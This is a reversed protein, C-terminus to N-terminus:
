KRVKKWEKQGEQLNWKTIQKSWENQSLNKIQILEEKSIDHLIADLEKWITWIPKGENLATGIIYQMLTDVSISGKNTAIQPHKVEM